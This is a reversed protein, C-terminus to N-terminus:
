TDVLHPNGSACVVGLDFFSSYRAGIAGTKM